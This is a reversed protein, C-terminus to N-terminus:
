TINAIKTNYSITRNKNALSLYIEGFDELQELNIIILRSMELIALFSAASEEKSVYKSTLESFTTVRVTKLLNVIEIIKERISFNQKKLEYSENRKKSEVFISYFNEALVFINANYLFDGDTKYKYAVIESTEEDLNGFDRVNVNNIDININFVDRGLIPKNELFLSFEKVKQYEILRNVLESRPDDNERIENGDLIDQPLLMLSKIYILNAAMVIFEGGLEINVSRNPDFGNIGTAKLYEETIKNIPIDYINIRNKKILTLLLDLPGEFVPLKINHQYVLVENRNYIDM